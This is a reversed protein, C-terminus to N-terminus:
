PGIQHAEAQNQQPDRIVRLSFLQDGCVPNLKFGTGLDPLDITAFCGVHSQYAIIDHSEGIKPVFGGTMEVELKGDLTAIGTIILKDYEDQAHAGLGMGLTGAATQLYNGIVHLTGIGGDGGVVLRAANRFTGQNTITGSFGFTGSALELTAGTSIQFSGSASGVERLSLTGAQIEVSGTNIFPINTYITTTGTSSATKRFTGANDIAHAGAASEHFSSQVGTIEFVGTSLNHLRGEPNFWLGQDAYTLTGSNELL